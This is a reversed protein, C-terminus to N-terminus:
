GVCMARGPVYNSLLLDPHAAELGPQGEDRQDEAAQDGSKRLRRRRSRVAVDKDEGGRGVPALDIGAASLGVALSPQGPPSGQDVREAAQIWLKEQDVGTTKDVEVLVM